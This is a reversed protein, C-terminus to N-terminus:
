RGRQLHLISTETRGDEFVFHVTNPAEYRVERADQFKIQQGTRLRSIVGKAEAVTTGLPGNYNKILVGKAQTM